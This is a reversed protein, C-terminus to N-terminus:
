PLRDLSIYRGQPHGVRANIVADLTVRLIPTNTFLSHTDLPQIITILYILNYISLLLPRIVLEDLRVFLISSLSPYQHHLDVLYKM